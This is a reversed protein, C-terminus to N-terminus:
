FCWGQHHDLSKETPFSITCQNCFHRTEGHYKTNRSSLGRPKKVWLFHNKQGYKETEKPKIIDTLAMLHIVLMFRGTEKKWEMINISIDSNMKEIKQFIHSTIPTPM